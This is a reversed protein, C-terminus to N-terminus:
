RRRAALLDVEAEDVDRVRGTRPLGGFYQRVRRGQRAARDVLLSPVVVVRGVRRLDDEARTRAVRDLAVELAPHVDDEAAHGDRESRRLLSQKSARVASRLWM